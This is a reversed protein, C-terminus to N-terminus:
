RLVLREALRKLTAFYGGNPADNTLPEYRRILELFYPRALDPRPPKSTHHDIFTQCLEEDTLHNFQPYQSNLTFNQKPM